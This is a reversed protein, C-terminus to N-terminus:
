PLRLIEFSPPITLMEPGIELVEVSDVRAGGPGEELRSAFTLLSGAEGGALIEVSGDARNHVTGGLMLASAQRHTWWRFGVGQVRGRVIYRASAGGAVSDTRNGAHQSM